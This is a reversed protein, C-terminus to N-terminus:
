APMTALMMDAAKEAIMTAPAHTNGSVITPMISADAIRLGRLGHVRLEPDVVAMSDQGMKATGVPHFITTGVQCDAEVFEIQEKLLPPTAGSRPVRRPM